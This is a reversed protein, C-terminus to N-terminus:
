VNQQNFFPLERIPCMFEAILKESIQNRIKKDIVNYLILSCQQANHDMEMWKEDGSAIDFLLIYWKKEQGCIIFSEQFSSFMCCSLMHPPMILYPANNTIGLSLIHENVEYKGIYIRNAYQFPLRRTDCLKQQKELHTNFAEAFLKAAHKGLTPKNKKLSM